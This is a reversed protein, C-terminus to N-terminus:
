SIPALGLAVGLEDVTTCLIDPKAALLESHDPSGWLVGITSIGAAKGALVDAASDGIIVASRDLPRDLEMSLAFLAEPDPKQRNVDDGAFLRDFYGDVGLAQLTFLATVRSKGTVVALPIGESRAASLLRDLGDFLSVHEQHHREYAAVYRRFAAKGAAGPLLDRLIYNDPPGFMSRIEDPHLTRGFEPALAANFARYILPLTDALTGDLDFIITSYNPSTPQDPTKDM